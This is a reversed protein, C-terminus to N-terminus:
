FSSTKRRNVPPAYKFYLTVDVVRTKDDIKTEARTDGLNDFIGEDHVYRLFYDPYDPNYPTGPQHTWMKRIASEGNLDLGDINLKGFLYQQGEDIRLTLDVIKKADDIKRVVQVDSRMYGDHALIKKIRDVGQGIDDFDALVGSKFKGAKLLRSPEFHPAGAIGVTGLNYTGGEDVTDFLSATRPLTCTTM